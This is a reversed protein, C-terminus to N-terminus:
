EGYIWGVYSSSLLCLATICGMAQNWHLLKVSKNNVM